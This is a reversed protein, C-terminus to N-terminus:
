EGALQWPSTVGIQAVLTKIEELEAKLSSLEGTAEKLIRVENGLSEIEKQQEKIAEILLPDLSGYHMTYYGDSQKDVLSPIIDKCEQAILGMQKGKAFAGSEIERRKNEPLNKDKIDDIQKWEFTQGKLALVRKLANEIPRIDKKLRRDSPFNWEGGGLTKYADGQVEFVDTAGNMTTLLTFVPGVASTYYNVRQNAGDIQIMIGDGSIHWDGDYYCKTSMHAFNGGGSFYADDIKVARDDGSIELKVDADPTGGIGVSHTVAVDGAFYGAYADARDKNAAEAYIGYETCIPGMFGEGAYFYGGYCKKGPKCKATSYVGYADSTGINEAHFWGGYAKNPDGNAVKATSYIGRVIGAGAAPAYYVCLKADTPTADGIGVNGSVASYMDNGDLTWDGDSPADSWQPDGSADTTLCKNAPASENILIKGNQINLNGAFYGAYNNTGGSATGHVGYNTVGNMAYGQVGYNTGSGGAISGLVGCYIGSVGASQPDVKGMVGYQGGEFKGGIGKNLNTMAATGEVAIPEGPATSNNWASIAKSTTSTPTSVGASIAIYKARAYIARSETDYVELKYSASPSATGIGVRYNLPVTGTWLNTGDEEWGRTGETWARPGSFPEDEGKVPNVDEKNAVQLNRSGESLISKLEAIETELAKIREEVSTKPKSIKRDQGVFGAVIFAVILIAVVPFFAKRIM